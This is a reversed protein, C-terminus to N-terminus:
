DYNQKRLSTMKVKANNTHLDGSRQIYPSQTMNQMFPNAIWIKTQLHWGISAGFFNTYILCFPFIQAESEDSSQEYFVICSALQM